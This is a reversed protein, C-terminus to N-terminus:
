YIGLILFTATFNKVHAFLLSTCFAPLGGFALNYRRFGILVDLESKANEILLAMCSKLLPWLGPSLFIYYSM